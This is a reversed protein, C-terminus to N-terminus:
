SSVVFIYLWMHFYFPIVVLFNFLIASVDSCMSKVRTESVSSKNTQQDTSCNYFIYFLVATRIMYYVRLINLRTPRHVQTNKTKYRDREKTNAQPKSNLNQHRATLTNDYLLSIKIKPTKCGKYNM